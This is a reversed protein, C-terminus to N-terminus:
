DALPKDRCAEVADACSAAAEAGQAPHYALAVLCGLGVTEACAIVIAAITLVFLSTQALCHITASGCSLGSPDLDNVPDNMVYAYRNFSQPRDKQAAGM